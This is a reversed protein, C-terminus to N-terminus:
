TKLPSILERSNINQKCTDLISINTLTFGMAKFTKRILHSDKPHKYKAKTELEQLQQYLFEQSTVDKSFLRIAGYPNYDSMGQENKLGSSVTIIHELKPHKKWFQCLITAIESTTASTIDLIVIKDNTELNMFSEPIKEQNTNCHNIDFFSLSTQTGKIKPEVIDILIPFDHVAQPTEYYMHSTKLEVYTPDIKTAQQLFLKAIASSLQISRMGTATIFKKSHVHIKGKSIDLEIEEDSDSGPGDEVKANVEPQFTFNALWIEFCSFIDDPRKRKIFLELEQQPASITKALQKLLDWYQSDELTINQTWNFKTLASNKLELSLKGDKCSFSDFLEQLPKAFCHALIQPSSFIKELSLSMCNILIKDIFYEVANQNRFLQTVFSKNKSDGNAWLSDWITPKISIDITKKATSKAKNYKTLVLNIKTTELPILFVDKNAFLKDLYILAEIICQHYAKPTLGLSIRLSHHCESLSPRLSDFSSRRILEINLGKELALKNTIAILYLSLFNNWTSDNKEAKPKPLTFLVCPYHNDANISLKTQRLKIQEVIFTSGKKQWNLLTDYWNDKISNQLAIDQPKLSAQYTKFHFPNHFNGTKPYMGGMIVSQNGIFVSDKSPTGELKKYRSRHYTSWRIPDNMTFVSPFRTHFESRPFFIRRSEKTIIEQDKNRSVKLM